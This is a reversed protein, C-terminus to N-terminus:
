KENPPDYSIRMKVDGFFLSYIDFAPKDILSDNVDMWYWKKTKPLFRSCAEDTPYPVLCLKRGITTLRNFRREIERDETFMMAFLNDPNVKKRRRVWDDVAREASKYHLCHLEIDGLRLVPHDGAQPELANPERFAFEPTLELYYEFNELFKLYDQETIWMNKIPSLCEMGLAHYLVGAWCMPSFFTMRSNKIELYRDFSLGPIDLVRGPILKKRDAGPMQMYSEIIEKEFADGAMILIYDHDIGTVLERPIFSHGDFARIGRPNRGTIGVVEIDGHEELCNLINIKSRYVREHGWIIIRYPKKM